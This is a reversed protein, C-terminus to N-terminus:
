SELGLDVKVEWGRGVGMPAWGWGDGVPAVGGDGVAAVGGECCYLFTTSTASSTVGLLLLDRVEMGVLTAEMGVPAAEIEVLAEMGVKKIQM